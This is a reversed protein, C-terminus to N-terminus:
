WQYGFEMGLIVDFNDAFQGKRRVLGESEKLELFLGGLQIGWFCRRCSSGFGKTGGIRAISILGVEKDTTTGALLELFAYTVRDQYLMRLNPGVVFYASSTQFMEQPQNNVYLSLNSYGVEGAFGFGVGAKIVGFSMRTGVLHVAEGITQVEEETVEHDGALMNQPDEYFFSYRMGADWWRPLGERNVMADYLVKGGSLVMAGVVFFGVVVFIIVATDDLDLHSNQYSAKLLLQAVNATEQIQVNEQQQEQFSSQPSEPKEQPPCKSLQEKELPEQCQEPDIQVPSREKKVPTTTLDDTSSPLSTENEAVDWAYLIQGQSQLKLHEFEEYNNMVYFPTHPLASQLQEVETNLPIGPTKSYASTWLLSLCLSFAICKKHYKM